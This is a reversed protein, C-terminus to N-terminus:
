IVVIFGSYLWKTKFLQLYFVVLVISKDCAKLTGEKM